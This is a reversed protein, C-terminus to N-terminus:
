ISLIKDSSLLAETIDYMNSIEGVGVQDTVGFHNVCTGCVLIHCGMEELKLLHDCTSTGKLALKVGENMFAITSPFIEDDLDPLTGLFGKILVEGLDPDSAGLIERAILVAINKRRNESVEPAIEEKREQQNKEAGEILMGTVIIDINEAEIAVEFGKKKLLRSVNQGAVPNDVIVKIETASDKEIAKKTMIVPQPCLKGRADVTKM